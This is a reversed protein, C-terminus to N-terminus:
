QVSARVHSLQLEALALKAEKATDDTCGNPIILLEVRDVGFSAASAENFISQSILSRITAGIVKAENRALMSITVVDM